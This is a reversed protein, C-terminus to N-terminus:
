FSRAPDTGAEPPPCCMARVDDPGPPRPRLSPGSPSRPFRDRRHFHCVAPRYRRDPSSSRTRSTRPPSPRTPPQAPRWPYFRPSPRFLLSPPSVAAHGMACPLAAVYVFPGLGQDLHRPKLRSVPRRHRRPTRRSLDRPPPIILKGIKKCILNLRTGLYSISM